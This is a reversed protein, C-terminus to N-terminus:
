VSLRAILNSLDEGIDDLGLRTLTERTPIGSKIDWGRLAYYEDLFRDMRKQDEAKLSGPACDDKRTMGSRVTHAKFLNFLREGTEMIEEPSIDTGTFASYLRAIRHAGIAMRMHTPFFCLGMADVLSHLDESWKLMAAKGEWTSGCRDPAMTYIKKKTEELMDYNEVPWNPNPQATTFHTSTTLDGRPNTFSGLFWWNGERGVEPVSMHGGERGKVLSVFKQADKGIREAAKATGDAL